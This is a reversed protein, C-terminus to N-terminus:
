IVLGIDDKFIKHNANIYRNFVVEKKNKILEILKFELNNEFFYRIGDTSVGINIFEEKSFELTKIGVGEKYHKLKDKDIFNYVYYEPYIGNDIKDFTINGNIDEKIIYGDGCYSVIFKNDEEKVIFFTFSLFDSLTKYENGILNIINLFVEEVNLSESILSCFLKAGVESHSAESCGDAVVKINDKITVYDQMNTGYELHQHGIKNIKMIGGKFYLCEILLAL